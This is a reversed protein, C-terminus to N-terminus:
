PEIMLITTPNNTYTSTLNKIGPYIVELSYYRSKDDGMVSFNKCFMFGFKSRYFYFNKPCLSITFKVNFQVILECDKSYYISFCNFLGRKRAQM